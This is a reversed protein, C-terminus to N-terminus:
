TTFHCSDNRLPLLHSSQFIITLSTYGSYHQWIFYLLGMQIQIEPLCLTNKTHAHGFYQHPKSIGFVNNTTIWSEFKVPCGTNKNALDSPRLSSYLAPLVKNHLNQTMSTRKSKLKTHHDQFTKLSPFSIILKTESINSQSWPSHNRFPSVPLLSMLKFLSPLPKQFLVVSLSGWAASELSVKYVSAVPSASSPSLLPIHQYQFNKRIILVIYKGKFAQSRSFTWEWFVQSLPAEPSWFEKGNAM